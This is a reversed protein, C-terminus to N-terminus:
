SVILIGAFCIYNTNIHMPFYQISFIKPFKTFSACNALNKRVLVQLYRSVVMSRDDSEGFYEKGNAEDAGIQWFKVGEINKRTRYRCLLVSNYTNKRLFKTRMPHILFCQRCLHSGIQSFGVYYRM